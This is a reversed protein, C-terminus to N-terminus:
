VVYKYYIACSGESSVMCPGVPNLPNCIKRFLGCEDPRIIGKLVDGCRCGAPEPVDPVSIDLVNLVNRHSFEQKLTLGTSPIVGIGRWRSDTEEFVDYIAKLAKKNGEPKVWRDYQIEVEARKRTIQLLLKYVALVIDAPEFGTIVCPIGYDESLFDYPEKGIIISVHGPCIFGGVGVNRDMVLAKMAPPVVKNAPFIMVNPINKKEAELLTSAIMPVTTEFGVSLFVVKKDPNDLAIKLAEMPSYLVRIDAGDAKKLSLNNKRSGPVRVMDGFTAVIVDPFDAIDIMTDIDGPPTVCVPCGPGSILKINSPLVDRIGARSIAMTHTGCVEMLRVDESIKESLDSIKRLIKKINEPKNYNKLNM